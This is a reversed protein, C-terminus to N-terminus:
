CTRRGLTGELLAQPAELRAVQHASLDARREGALRLVEELVHERAIDGVIAYRPALTARGVGLDGAPQLAGGAIACGLESLQQRVM